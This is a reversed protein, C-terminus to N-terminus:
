FYTQFAVKIRFNNQQEINHRLVTPIEDSQLHVGALSSAATRTAIQDIKEVLRKWFRHFISTKEIKVGVIASQLM